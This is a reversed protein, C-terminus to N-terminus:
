DEVRIIDPDFRDNEGLDDGDPGYNRPMVKPSAALPAVFAGDLSGTNAGTGFTAAWTQPGVTGDIQIGARRQIDRCAQRDAASYKGTVKRGAKEQWDSVGSGSTTDSDKTGVTFYQSPGLPFEPTDDPRWNPYKANRWRGGNPAVGEGFLVNPDDDEEIDVNIGRQGHRVTWAITTLNKKRLVPERGD